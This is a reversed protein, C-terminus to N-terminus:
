GRDRAPLDAGSLRRRVADPDLSWGDGEVTLAPYYVQDLWNMFRARFGPDFTLDAAGAFAARLTAVSEAPTALGPQAWFAEGTVIVPKDHFFAQLGMSSNITVVGRSAAVQAFSDSANDLVIRGGSAASAAAVQAAVSVRASPHEKVRITWGAPLTAATDGLAAIFGDLGGSWGAFLRMQSDDPVQLPVFLFPAGGLDAGAEQGVDARRSTRAVLNAGLRRWDEGTRAPDTGAWRDYFARGQPVSSEANVGRPDITIRGPLPALEAYLRGAGADHAGQMYAWRSGTLGNWCLAVADPHRAFFRRSWNYQGRLLAYKLARFIAWRPQKKARALAMAARAASEPFGRPSLGIVALRRGGGAAAAISAFLSDKRRNWEAPFVIM